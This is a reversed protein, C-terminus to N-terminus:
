PLWNGPGNWGVEEYMATGAALILVIRKRTLGIRTTQEVGAQRLSFHADLRRRTGQVVGIRITRNYPSM